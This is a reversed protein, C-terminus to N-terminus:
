LKWKEDIDQKSFNLNQNNVKTETNILWTFQLDYQVNNLKPVFM